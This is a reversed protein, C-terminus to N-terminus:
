SVPQDHIASDTQPPPGSDASFHAVIKPIAIHMANIALNLVIHRWNPSSPRDVPQPAPRSAKFRAGAVGVIFGAGAIALLSAPSTVRHRVDGALAKAQGRVTQQREFVLRELQEIQDALSAGKDEARSVVTSM